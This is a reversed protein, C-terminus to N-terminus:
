RAVLDLAKLAMSKSTNITTINAEYARSAAIMDVMETITSVNPMLVYGRSDADPHSPNYMPVFPSMDDVVASVEAGRGARTRGMAANMYDGFTNSGIERMVVMQRRYPTGNATKTANANALNRSIVDMRLKQANLASVGIDISDFLGM